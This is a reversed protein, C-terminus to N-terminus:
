EMDVGYTKRSASVKSISLGSDKKICALTTWGNRIINLGVKEVIEGYHEKLIHSSLRLQSASMKRVGTENLRRIPLLSCEALMKLVTM